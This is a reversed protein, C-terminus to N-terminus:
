PSTMVSVGWSEIFDQAMYYAKQCDSTAESTIGLATVGTGNASFWPGGSDGHDALKPYGYINSVEIWTAANLPYDLTATTSTIQGCTYHTALGYKFVVDGIVQEMYTKKSNVDFTWGNDWWQIALNMAMAKDSVDIIKTGKWETSGPGPGDTFDTYLQYSKVGSLASLTKTIVSAATQTTNCGTLGALVVICSVCISLLCLKKYFM